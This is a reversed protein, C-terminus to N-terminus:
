PIRENKRVNETPNYNEAQELQNEELDQIGLQM